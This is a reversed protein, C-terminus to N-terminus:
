CPKPTPHHARKYDFRSQPSPSLPHLNIMHVLPHYAHPMGLDLPHTVIAAMSAASGGFWFPYHWKQKHLAISRPNPGLSNPRNSM